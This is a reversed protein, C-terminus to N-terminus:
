KSHQDGFLGRGCCQMANTLRELALFYGEGIKKLNVYLKTPDEHSILDDLQTLGNSCFSFPFLSLSASLKVQRDDPMPVSGGAEAKNSLFNDQFELVQLVEEPRDLVEEKQIGSSLLM